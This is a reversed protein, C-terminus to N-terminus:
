KKAEVLEKYLKEYEKAGNEWSFSSNMGNKQLVKYQDINNNYCSIANQLTNKISNQSLGSMVFGNAKKGDNIDIVTDNLGGTKNVIPVSGYLLSYMQNLGCPEYVSPMFFFDSGAELYHSLSESFEKKYSVNEYTSSLYSFTDELEKDGTGIILFLANGERITSVLASDNGGNLCEYFGKQKALRSIIAIIPRKDDKKFGFLEKVKNKAKEKGSMDKQSFTMNEEKLFKDISPNWVNEDVGNLIGFLSKEREKLYDDLGESYEPTLIEKAYTPSVTTIASANLIGCKLPNIMRTDKGDELLTKDVELGTLLANFVSTRGMYAINHITFVTKYLNKYYYPVLATMWDHSHIIDANFHVYSLLPKISKVLLMQRYLSDEYSVNNEGYVGKRESFVPHSLFYFTLNEDEAKSFTVWEKKLATEIEVEGIFETKFNISSANYLPLFVRVDNGEKKLAKSLSSVM